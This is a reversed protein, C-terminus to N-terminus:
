VKSSKFPSPVYIYGCKNRSVSKTHLIQPKLVEIASSELTGPQSVTNDPLYNIVNWLITTGGDKADHLGLLIYIYFL